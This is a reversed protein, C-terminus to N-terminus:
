EEEEVGATSDAAAAEAKAIERNYAWIAGDINKVRTDLAEIENLSQTRSQILDDREETFTLAKEQAFISATLLILGAIILRKM